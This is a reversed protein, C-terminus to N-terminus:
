ITLKYIECAAKVEELADLLKPIHHKFDDVDVKNGIWVRCPEDDDKKSCNNEVVIFEGGHIECPGCTFDNKIEEIKRQLKDTM